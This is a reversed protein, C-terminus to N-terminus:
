YYTLRIKIVNIIDVLNSKDGMYQHSVKNRIKLM